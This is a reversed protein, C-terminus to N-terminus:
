SKICVSIICYINIYINNEEKNFLIILRELNRKNITGYNIDKNKFYNLIVFTMLLRTELIEMM